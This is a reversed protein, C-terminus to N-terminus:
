ADIRVKRGETVDLAIKRFLAIAKSELPRFRTEKYGPLYLDRKDEPFPVEVLSVGHAGSWDKFYIAGITYIAGKKLEPARLASVCVVKQGVFFESM